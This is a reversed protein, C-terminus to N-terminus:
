VADEPQASSKTLQSKAERLVNELDGDIGARHALVWQEVESLVARGEELAGSLSLTHAKGCLTFMLDYAHGSERLLAESRASHALSEELLGMMRAVNARHSLIRALEYHDGLARALHEASDLWPLSSVHDDMRLLMGALNVTWLLETPRDGLRRVEEVCTRYAAASAQLDGRKAALSGLNGRISAVNLTEGLELFIALAARDHTEAAELKGQDALFVGLNSQALGIGRLSGAQRALELSRQTLEIAEDHEGRHSALAGLERMVLAREVLHRPPLVALARELASQAAAAEGMMGLVTGLARLATGVLLPDGTEEATQVAELLIERGQQPDLRSIAEGHLRRLRARDEARLPLALARDLMEVSPALSGKGRLLFAVAGVLPAALSPQQAQLAWRVAAVFNDLEQRLRQTLSPGQPGYTADLAEPAGLQAHYRAHAEAIQQLAESGLAELKEHAYVRVTELLELRIEGGVIRRVLLSALLLAELVEFLSRGDSPPSLV